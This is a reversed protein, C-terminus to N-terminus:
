EGDPLVVHDIAHIVGNSCAIDAHTVRSDNVTVGTSDLRVRLPPGAVTPLEIIKVASSMGTGSTVHGKLIGILEDRNAPLMLDDLKGRPMRAFAEDTPAFVTFPGEGALTEALGAEAAATLLTSFQGAAKATEVIDKEAAAGASVAGALVAAAARGINGRSM